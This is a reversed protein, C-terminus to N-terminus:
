SLRIDIHSEHQKNSKNKHFLAKNNKFYFQHYFLRKNDNPVSYDILSFKADIINDKINDQNLSVVSKSRPMNKHYHHISKGRFHKIQAHDEFKDDIEELLKIKNFLNPNDYEKQKIDRIDSLLKTEVLNNETTSPSKMMTDEILYYHKKLDLDISPIQYSPFEKKGLLEQNKKTNNDIKNKIIIPSYMRSNDRQHEKSNSNFSNNLSNLIHERYVEGQLNKQLRIIPLEIKQKKLDETEKNQKERNQEMELLSKNDYSHLFYNKIEDIRKIFNCIKSFAANKMSDFCHKEELCLKDLAKIM